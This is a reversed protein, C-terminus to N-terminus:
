PQTDYQRGHFRRSLISKIRHIKTRVSGASLGAIEGISIADMDELYLLMLQRDPPKLRHVLGLLRDLALRDDAAREHDSPDPVAEIEELTMLVNSRARRQRIIHGAATNHAIRYVWTRLSCRAEYTEFSCWLAM